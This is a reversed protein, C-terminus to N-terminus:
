KSLLWRFCAENCYGANVSVLGINLYEAFSPEYADSSRNFLFRPEGSGRALTSNSTGSVGKFLHASKSCVKKPRSRGDPSMSGVSYVKVHKLCSASISLQIFLCRDADLPQKSSSSNWPFFRWPLYTGSYHWPQWSTGRNGTMGMERKEDQCENEISEEIMTRNEETTSPAPRLRIFYEMMGWFRARTWVSM